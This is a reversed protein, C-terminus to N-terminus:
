EKDVEELKVLEDFMKVYEKSKKFVHGSLFLDHRTFDKDKEVNVTVTGGSETCNDITYFLLKLLEDGTFYYKEGECGYAGKSVYHYFVVSGNEDYYYDVTINQSAAINYEVVVKVPSKYIYLFDVGNADEVVSDLPMPYYFRVTTYQKGIARKNTEFSISHVMYITHIDADLTILSDIRYCYNDIEKIKSTQPLVQITSFLILVAALRVKKKM